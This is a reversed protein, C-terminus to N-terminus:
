LNIITLYMFIKYNEIFIQENSHFILIFLLRCWLNILKTLFFKKSNIRSKILAILLLNTFKIKNNWTNKIKIEFFLRWKLIMFLRKRKM